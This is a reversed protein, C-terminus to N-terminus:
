VADRGRRARGGDGRAGVHRQAGAGSHCAHGEECFDVQFRIARAQGGHRLHRSPRLHELKPIASFVGYQVVNANSQALTWVRLHVVNATSRALTWAGASACCKCHEACADVRGCVAGCKCHEACADVRGCVAGCKCHEACADVCGCICLMQLAGRLRGRVRMHVVNATSQALTWVGAYARVSPCACAVCYTCGVAIRDDKQGSASASASGRCHCRCRRHISQTCTIIVVLRM